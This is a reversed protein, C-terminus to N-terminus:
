VLDIVILRPEVERPAEDLVRGEPVCPLEIPLELPEPEWSPPERNREGDDFWRPM